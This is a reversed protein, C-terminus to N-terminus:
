SNRSSRSKNTFTSRHISATSIATTGTIHDLLISLLVSYALSVLSNSFLNTRRRVKDDVDTINMVFKLDFKFYDRLIRRLIDTSVYNRAHGLHADDYVTPGCVYWTVKSGSSDTPVFENKTRTLSNYIRLPPINIGEAPKQPIHWPPQKKNSSMERSGRYSTIYLKRNHLSFRPTLGHRWALSSM